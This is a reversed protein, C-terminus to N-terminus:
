PMEKAMSRLLGDALANIEEPSLTSGPPADPNIPPEPKGTKQEKLRRIELEARRVYDDFSEGKRPEILISEVKPPPQAAERPKHKSLWGTVVGNLEEPTLTSGPRANPDLPPQPKGTKQERVTRAFGEVRRVFQELTEDDELESQDISPKPPEPEQ